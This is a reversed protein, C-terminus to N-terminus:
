VPGGTEVAVTDKGGAKGQYLAFDARRLLDDGSEGQEFQAVGFTATIARAERLPLAMERVSRRVREAVATAGTEDTDPVLIAFEEGGLRGPVDVDRLHEEILRAFRRLVEDGVHHGFLDNILKFDDLDAVIVSLPTGFTTARTIENGLAELFRRRNVLGTLDDTVAQQQVLHHLRANELAIAAQSALWEALERTETSFGEAAPYLMLNTRSEGQRALELLLPPRGYTEGIWGIEEGDEVVRGGRASTADVVVELIVSLLARPDHTAALANGVLALAESPDSRSPSGDATRSRRDRRVRPPRPEGTPRLLGFLLWLTLATMLAALTILL